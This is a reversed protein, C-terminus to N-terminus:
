ENLVKEVNSFSTLKSISLILLTPRIGMSALLIIKKALFHILLKKHVTSRRIENAVIITPNQLPPRLCGSVNTPKNQNRGSHLANNCNEVGLSRAALMCIM